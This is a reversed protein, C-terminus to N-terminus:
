EGNITFYKDSVNSGGFDIYYELFPYIKQNPKTADKLINLLSLRLQKEKITSATAQM